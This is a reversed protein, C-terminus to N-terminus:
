NLCPSFGSREHVLYRSRLYSSLARRVLGHLWPRNLRPQVPLWVPVDASVECVTQGNLDLRYLQKTM